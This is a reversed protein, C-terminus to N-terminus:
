FKKAQALLNLGYKENRQSAEKSSLGTKKTNLTQLIKSIDLSHWVIKTKSM